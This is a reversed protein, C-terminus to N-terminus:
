IILAVAIRSIKECILVDKNLFFFLRSINIPCYESLWPDDRPRRVAVPTASAMVDANRM